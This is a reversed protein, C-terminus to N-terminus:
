NWSAGLMQAYVHVSLPVALNGDELHLAPLGMHALSWQWGGMNVAWRTNTSHILFSGLHVSVYAVLLTVMREWIVTVSNSFTTPTRARSNYGNTDQSVQETWSEANATGCWKCMQMFSFKTWSPEMAFQQQWDHWRLNGVSAFKCM